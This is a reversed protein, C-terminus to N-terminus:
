ARPGDGALQWSRRRLTEVDAGWMVFDITVGSWGKYSCEGVDGRDVDRPSELMQMKCRM